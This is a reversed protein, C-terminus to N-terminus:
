ECLGLMFSTSRAESIGCTRMVKPANADDGSVEEDSCKFLLDSLLMSLEDYSGRLPVFIRVRGPNAELWAKLQTLDKPTGLQVTDGAVREATEENITIPAARIRDPRIELDFENKKGTPPDGVRGVLQCATVAGDEKFKFGINPSDDAAPIRLKLAALRMSDDVRRRGVLFIDKVGGVEGLKPPFLKLVQFLTSVSTNGAMELVIRQYDVRNGPKDKTDILLKAVDAALTPPVAGTWKDALKVEADTTAVVGADSFTVRVGSRGGVAAVTSPLVLEEKFALPAQIAADLATAFGKAVDDFIKARETKAHYSKALGQLIELFARDVLAARFEHPVGKCKDKLAPHLFCLRSVYDSSGEGMRRSIGFAVGYAPHMGEWAM